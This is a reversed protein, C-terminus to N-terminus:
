DVVFIGKHIVVKVEQGLEFSNIPHNRVMSSQFDFPNIVELYPHTRAVYTSHKKLVAYSLKAYDIILHNNTILDVLNIKSGLKEVKYVKDDALIVDGKEFGPLRVFVSIRYINKSTQKNRSFLHPSAKYVGGFRDQLEKGLNQAIKQNTVYLDYGDDLRETKNIFMGRHRLASVRQQLLEISKELIDYNSSRVQLVAEYYQTGEKECLNCKALKLTVPVIKEDKKIMVIVKNDKKEKLTQPYEINKIIVKGNPYQKKVKESIVLKIDKFLKWQNHDLYKNCSCLTLAIAKM